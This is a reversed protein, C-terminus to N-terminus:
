NKRVIFSIFFMAMTDIGKVVLSVLVSVVAAVVMVTTLFQM